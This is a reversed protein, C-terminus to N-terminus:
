EKTVLLVSKIPRQIKNGTKDVKGYVTQGDHYLAASSGGDLNMAKVAGLSSLFNTLEPLSIGSNLPQDTQQEVMALIIGGNKTIGIASRANLSDRGIADRIRAGNQYSTFAEPTSTDRPLLGPGAGLSEKLTCNQPIPASHLQIDYRTKKEIKKKAKTGCSYHRFEARNFIKELYPKLDPNDVLRENLRPDAVTQSNQAIFSTTKYNIPDFYGGNIAAIVKHRPTSGQEVFESLSKLEKSVEPIVSYGSDPPITVTHITHRSRKFTDYRIQNSLISPKASSINNVKFSLGLGLITLGLFIWRMKKM